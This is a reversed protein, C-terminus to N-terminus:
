ITPFLTASCPCHVQHTCCAACVDCVPLERPWPLPYWLAGGVSLALALARRKGGWGWGKDRTCRGLAGHGICGGAGGRQPAYPKGLLARM